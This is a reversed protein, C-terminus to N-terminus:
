LSTVKFSIGCHLANRQYLSITFGWMDLGLPVLGKNLYANLPLQPYDTLVVYMIISCQQIWVHIDDCLTTRYKLWTQNSIHPTVLLNIFTQIHAILILPKFVLTWQVTSVANCDLLLFSARIFEQQTQHLLLLPKILFVESSLSLIFTSSNSSLCYSLSMFSLARM